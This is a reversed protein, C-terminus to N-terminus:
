IIYQINQSFSIFTINIIKEEELRVLKVFHFIHMRIILILDFM